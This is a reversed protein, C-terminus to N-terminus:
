FNICSALMRRLLKTKTLLKPHTALVLGIANIFSLAFNEFVRMRSLSSVLQDFETDSLSYLSKKIQYRVTNRPVCTNLMKNNYNWPTNKAVEQGAIKGSMLATVIGGGTSPDTLQAADGTLVINGYVYKKLPQATPILKARLKTKPKLKHKKVFARLLHGPNIKASLAVGLGVKALDTRSDPFIWVYGTPAYSGFYLHILDEDELPAALFQVGLHLDDLKLPPLGAWKRTIGTIGDAGIIWRSNPPKAPAENTRVEVGEAIIQEAMDKELKVRDIIFGLDKPHELTATYSPSHIVAGKLKRVLYRSPLSVQAWKLAWKSVAEGCIIDGFWKKKEYLTLKSTAEKCLAQAAALGALSGGVISVEGM